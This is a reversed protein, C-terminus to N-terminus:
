VTRLAPQSPTTRGGAGGRPRHVRDIAEAIECLITDFGANLLDRRGIIVYDHGPRARKAADALAARLRRKVRNRETATGVKRSVTLGFRAEGADGPRELAQLGINRTYHRRGKAAAVYDARKTLKGVKRGRPEGTM